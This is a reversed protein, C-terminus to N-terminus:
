GDCLSKLTELAKAVPEVWYRRSKLLLRKKAATGTTKASIKRLLPELKRFQKKELSPIGNLINYFVETLANLSDKDLHKIIITILKDSAEADALYQLLHFSKILCKSM